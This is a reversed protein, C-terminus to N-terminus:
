ESPTGRGSKTMGLSSRPMEWPCSRLSVREERLAGRNAGNHRAMRGAPLDPTSIRGATVYGSLRTRVIDKATHGVKSKDFNDVAVLRRNAFYGLRCIRYNV